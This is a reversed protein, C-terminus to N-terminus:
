KMVNSNVQMTVSVGGINMALAPLLCLFLAINWPRSSPQESQGIYKVSKTAYENNICRQFVVSVSLRFHSDNALGFEAQPEKPFHFQKSLYDHWLLTEKQKDVNKVFELAEHISKM